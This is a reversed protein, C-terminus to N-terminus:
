LREKHSFHGFVRSCIFDPQRTRNAFRDIPSVLPSHSWPLGAILNSSVYSRSQAASKHNAQPTELTNKHKFWYKLTKNKNPNNILANRSRLQKTNPNTFIGVKQLGNGTM